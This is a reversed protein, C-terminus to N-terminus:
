ILEMIEEYSINRMKALFIKRLTKLEEKKKYFYSILVEIGMTIFESQSRLGVIFEGKSATFYKLIEVPDKVNQPFLSAYEGKYFKVLAKFDWDAMKKLDSTPTFGNELLLLHGFDFISNRMLIYGNILEINHRNLYVLFPSDIKVSEKILESYYFKDVMENIRLEGNNAERINDNFDVFLHKYREPIMKEDFNGDEVIEAGIDGYPFLKEEYDKGYYVHKLIMKINYSDFYLNFFDRIGKEPSLFTLEDILDKYVQFLLEEFLFDREFKEIYPKYCSESLESFFHDMNKASALKAIKQRDLLNTELARIRGSAYAYRGDFTTYPYFETGLTM